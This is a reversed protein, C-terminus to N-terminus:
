GFGKKTLTTIIHAQLDYFSQSGVYGLDGFYYFTNLAEDSFIVTEMRPRKQM